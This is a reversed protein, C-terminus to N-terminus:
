DRVLRVVIRKWHKGIGAVKIAEEVFLIDKEDFWWVLERSKARPQDSNTWILLQSRFTM